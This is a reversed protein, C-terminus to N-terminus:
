FVFAAVLFLPLLGRESDRAHVTGGPVRGTRPRPWAKVGNSHTPEPLAYLQRRGGLWPAASAPSSGLDEPRSTGVAAPEWSQWPPPLDLGPALHQAGAPGSSLSLGLHSYRGGKEKREKKREVHTQQAVSHTLASPVSHVSCVKGEPPNM